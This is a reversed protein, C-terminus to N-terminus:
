ALRCSCGSGSDLVVRRALGLGGEYVCRMLWSLLGGGTHQVM